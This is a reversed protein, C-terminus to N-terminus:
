SAQNPFQLLALVGYPGLRVAQELIVCNRKSSASINKFWFEATSPAEFVDSLGIPAPALFALKAAFGDPLKAADTVSLTDYNLKRLTPSIAPWARKGPRFMVGACPVPCEEVYRIVTAQASVDFTSAIDVLSQLGPKARVVANRFAQQPLLFHSAFLNAETEIILTADTDIFSSHFPARGSALALRHEDIFYHGLEHSITFRIRTSTPHDIEKVNCYIHFRGARHELLGDFADGYDGMSLTIGYEEMLVLPQSPVVGGAEIFAAEGLDAIWRRRPLSVEVFAM